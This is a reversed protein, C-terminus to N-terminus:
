LRCFVGFLLLPVDHRDGYRHWLEALANGLACDRAPELALALVDLGVLRQQLHGGVLDVGLDRRRHGAHQAADGDGLVLRDGDARFERDDVLVTGGSRRLRRGGRGFRRRGLGRLSRCRRRRGSGSGRGFGLGDRLRRRRVLRGGRRRLCRHVLCRGSGRVLRRGSGRVCRRRRSGVGRWRWGGRDGVLRGRRCSGLGPVAHGLGGDNLRVRGVPRIYSREDALEGGLVADVQGRHRAGADAATDALLVDEVGGPDGAAGLYLRRGSRGCRRGRRREGGLRDSGRRRRSRGGCRGGRGRGSGREPRCGAAGCREAITGELRRPVVSRIDRARCTM